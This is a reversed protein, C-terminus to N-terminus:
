PEAQLCICCSKSKYPVKQASNILCYYYKDIYWKDKNHTTNGVGGQYRAGRPHLSSTNLNYVLMCLFSNAIAGLLYGRSPDPGTCLKPWPANTACGYSGEDSM